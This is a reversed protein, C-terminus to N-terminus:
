KKIRNTQLSKQIKNTVIMDDTFLQLRREAKERLARLLGAVDLLVKQPLPFTRYKNHKTAVLWMHRSTTHPWNSSM